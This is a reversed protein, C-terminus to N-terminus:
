SKLFFVTALDRPNRKAERIDQVPVSSPGCSLGGFPVSEKFNWCFGAREPQLALFSAASGSPPMGDEGWGQSAQGAQVPLVQLLPRRVGGLLVFLGRAERGEM